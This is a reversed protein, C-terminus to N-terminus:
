GFKPSSIHICTWYAASRAARHDRDCYVADKEQEQDYGDRSKHCKSLVNLLEGGSEISYDARVGLQLTHGSAEVLPSFTWNPCVFSSKKKASIGAFLM